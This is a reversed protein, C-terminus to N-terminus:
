PEVEGVSRWARRRAGPAVRAKRLEDALMRAFDGGRWERVWDADLGYRGYPAFFWPTRVHWASSVVSVRRIGGLALM